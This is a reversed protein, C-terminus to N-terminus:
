EIGYKSFLDHIAEDMLAEATTERELALKKLKTRVDKDVWAQIAVKGIRGKSKGAKQSELVDVPNHTKGASSEISNLDLPRRKQTM